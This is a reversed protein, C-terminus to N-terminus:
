AQMECLRSALFRKLGAPTSPWITPARKLETEMLANTQGPHPAPLTTRHQRKTVLSAVTAHQPEAPFARRAWSDGFLVGDTLDILKPAFRGFLQQARTQNSVSM